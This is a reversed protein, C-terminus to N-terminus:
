LTQISEPALALFYGPFIKACFTLFNRAVCNQDNNKHLGLELLVAWFSKKERSVSPIRKVIDSSVPLTKSVNWRSIERAFISSRHSAAPTGSKAGFSFSADITGIASTESIALAFFSKM